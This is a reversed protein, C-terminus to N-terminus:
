PVCEQKNLLTKVLDGGHVTGPSHMDDDVDRDAKKPISHLSGGMVVDGLESDAIANYGKDISLRIASGSPQSFSEGTLPGPSFPGRDLSGRSDINILLPQNM